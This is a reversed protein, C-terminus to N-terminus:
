IEVPKAARDDPKSPNENEVGTVESIIQVLRDSPRKKRTSKFIEAAKKAGGKKAPNYKSLDM